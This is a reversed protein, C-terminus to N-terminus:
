TFWRLGDETAIADLPQDTAEVPVEARAQAAFALGIALVAGDARLGGLTRDYFGGGYGLRYGQADFALLPVILVRPRLWDGAAPVTAGFAGAVMAADHTWRRFALPQGKGQVVPVCVPGRHAAMAPLPDVESRMPMYGSLVAQTLGAARVAETVAHCAAAVRAGRDPAEFAAQRAAAAQRRVEAKQTIPNRTPKDSDTM